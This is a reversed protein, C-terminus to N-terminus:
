PSCLALWIWRGMRGGLKGEGILLRMGHGVRDWQLGGGEM